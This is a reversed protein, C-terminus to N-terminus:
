DEEKKEIKKNYKKYTKIIRVSSSQVLIEALRSDSILFKFTRIVISVVFNTTKDGDQM